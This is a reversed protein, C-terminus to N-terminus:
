KHALAFEGLKECFEGLKGCFETLERKRFLVSSVTNRGNGLSLHTKAFPTETSDLTSALRVFFVRPYHGGATYKASLAGCGLSAHMKCFVGELLGRKKIGSIRLCSFLACLNLKQTRLGGPPTPTKWAFPHHGFVEHGGEFSQRGQTEFLPIRSTGPIKGPHGPGRATNLFNTCFFKMRM